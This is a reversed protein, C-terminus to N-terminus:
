KKTCSARLIGNALDKSNKFNVLQAELANLESTLNTKQNLCVEVDDGPAPTPTVVPPSVPSGGGSSKGGCATLTAVLFIFATTRM